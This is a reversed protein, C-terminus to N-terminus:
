RVVVVRDRWRVGSRLQATLWYIGSSLGTLDMESTNVATRLRSGNLGFLSLQEIEGAAAGTLRLKGSRVPNPSVRLEPESRAKAVSTTEPCLVKNLERWLADHYESSVFNEGEADGMRVVILGESPVLDLIQGNAGLAALLDAPASPSIPGPFEQFTAPLRHSPQGNLWWLYGYSSNLDQSPTLMARVYATDQIVPTGAWSGQNAILLGYRAMDRPRSFFLTQEATILWFGQM